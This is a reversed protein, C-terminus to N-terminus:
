GRHADLCVVVLGPVNERKQMPPEFTRDTSGDEVVIVGSPRGVRGRMWMAFEGLCNLAEENHAPIVVSIQPSAGSHEAQPM